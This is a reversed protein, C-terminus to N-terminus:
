AAPRYLCCGQVYESEFLDTSDEAQEAQGLVLVGHPAVRHSLNAFAAAREPASLFLLVNRMLVLDYIAAGDPRECVDAEGFDCLVRLEPAVEWEEDDRTFYKVLMRAPLGRNVEARRYRGRRAYEVTEDASDTGVVKVDWDALQEAFHERLLMAVSYAEQGTACGACWIRLRREERRAAILRPLVTHQLAEFVERDRFFATEHLATAETSACHLRGGGDECLAGIDVGWTTSM